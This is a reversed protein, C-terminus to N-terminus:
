CGMSRWFDEFEKQRKQESKEQLEQIQKKLRAARMCYKALQWTDWDQIDDIEIVGKRVYNLAKRMARYKGAKLIREKLLGVMLIVDKREERLVNAKYRPKDIDPRYEDFDATAFAGWDVRGDEDISPTLPCKRGRVPLQLIPRLEEMLYVRELEHPNLLEEDPLGEVSGYRNSRERKLLASEAVVIGDYVIFGTEEQDM